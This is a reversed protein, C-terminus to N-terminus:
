QPTFGETAGECRLIWVLPPHVLRICGISVGIFGDLCKLIRQVRTYVLDLTPFQNFSPFTNLVYFKSLAGALASNTCQTQCEVVRCHLACM